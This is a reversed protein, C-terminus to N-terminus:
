AANVADIVVQLAALNAITSEAAVAVIYAALNAEIVSTGGANVLIAITLPSADSAVAYDNTRALSTAANESLVAIATAMDDVYVSSEKAKQGYAGRIDMVWSVKRDKFDTGNFGFATEIDQRLGLVQKDSDYVLATNSPMKTTQYQSLGNLATVEGRTNVALRNDKISNANLDKLDEIKDWVRPNLIVSDTMWDALRAQLKAKAIVSIENAQPSAGAYELPNFVTTSETSNLIGWPTASNDGGTSFLSNDITTKIGDALQRVLEDIVEVKDRLLDKSLTATAAWDFVKFDKSTVEIRSDASPAVGEAVLESNDELNEYILLTMFSGTTRQVNFIDLLHENATLPPAISGIGARNIAQNFVSQTGTGALFINEGAKNAVHKNSLSRIDINKQELSSDSLKFQANIKIPSADNGFEDKEIKEGLGSKEFHNEIVTRLVSKNVSFDKNLVSNKANITEGQKVLKDELGKIQTELAQIKDESKASESEDKDLKILTVIEDKLAKMEAKIENNVAEVKGDVIGSIESKFETAAQKVNTVEDAM